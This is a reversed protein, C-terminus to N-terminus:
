SGAQARCAAHIAGTRGDPTDAFTATGPFEHRIWSRLAEDAEAHVVIAAPSVERRWTRELFAALDSEGFLLSPGIAVIAPACAGAATPDLTVVLPRRRWWRVAVASWAPVAGGPTAAGAVDFHHAYLRGEATIDAHFVPDLWGSAAGLSLKAAPSGNESAQATVAHLWALLHQGVRGGIDAVYITQPLLQDSAPHEKAKPAPGPEVEPLLPTLPRDLLWQLARRPDRFAEVNACHELLRARDEDSAMGRPDHLAIAAPIVRSWSWVWELRDLLVPMTPLQDSQPRNHRYQAEFLATTQPVDILLLPTIGVADAAGSGSDDRSPLTGPPPLEDIDGQWFRITVGTHRWLAGRLRGGFRGVRLRPGACVDRLLREPAQPPIAFLHGTALSPPAVM